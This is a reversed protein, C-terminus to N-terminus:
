FEDYGSVQRIPFIHRNAACITELVHVPTDETSHSARLVQVIM